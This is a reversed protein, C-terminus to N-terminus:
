LVLIGLIFGVGISLLSSGLVALILGSYTPREILQKRLDKNIDVITKIELVKTDYEQKIEDRQKQLREIKLSLKKDAKCDSVFSPKVLYGPKLGKCMIWYVESYDTPTAVCSIEQAIV